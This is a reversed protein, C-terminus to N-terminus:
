LVTVSIYVARSASAAGEEGPLEAQTAGAPPSAGFGGAVEGAEAGAGEFLKVLNTTRVSVFTRRPCTIPLAPQASSLRCRLISKTNMTSRVAEYTAQADHDSSM